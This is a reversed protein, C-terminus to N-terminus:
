TLRSIVLVLSFDSTTAGTSVIPRNGGPPFIRCIRCYRLYTTTNVAQMIYMQQQLFMNIYKMRESQTDSRIDAKILQNNKYRRVQPKSMHFGTGSKRQVTLWKSYGHLLLTWIFLIVAPLVANIGILKPM